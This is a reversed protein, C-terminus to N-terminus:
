CEIQNESTKVFNISGRCPDRGHPMIIIPKRSWFLYKRCPRTMFILPLKRARFAYLVSLGVCRFSAVRFFLAGGNVNVLHELLHGRRSVLSSHHVVHFGVFIGNWFIDDWAAAFILQQRPHDRVHVDTEAIKLGEPRASVTRTTWLTQLLRRRPNNLSKGQKAVDFHKLLPDKQSITYM